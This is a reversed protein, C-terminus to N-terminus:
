LRRCVRKLPINAARLADAGYFLQAALRRRGRSSDKNAQRDLDSALDYIFGVLSTYSLSGIECAVDDLPRSLSVPHKGCSVRMHPECIEWARKFYINAERLADSVDRLGSLEECVRCQNELGSALEYIFGVLKDYRLNGVEKALSDLSVM